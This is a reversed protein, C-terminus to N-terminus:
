PKRPGPTAVARSQGQLSYQLLGASPSLGARKVTNIALKYRVTGEPTVVIDVAAASGGGEAEFAILLVPKGALAAAVEDSWARTPQDMFVIQAGALQDIRKVRVARIPRGAATKGILARDLTEGFPDKGIIAITLPAHPGTTVDEPWSVHNAFNVLYAAVVSKLKERDLGAPPTAAALRLACATMVVFLGFTFRRRAKTM